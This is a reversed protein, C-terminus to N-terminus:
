VFLWWNTHCMQKELEILEMIYIKEATRTIIPAVWIYQLFFFCDAQKEHTRIKRCNKIRMGLIRRRIISNAAYENKMWKQLHFSNIPTKWMVLRVVLVNMKLSRMEWKRAVSCLLPIGGNSRISKLSYEFICVIASRFDVVRFHRCWKFQSLLENSCFINISMQVTREFIFTHKPTGCTQLM